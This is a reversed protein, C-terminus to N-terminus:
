NQTQAAEEAQAKNEQNIMKMREAIREASMVECVSIVRYVGSTRAAVTMAITNEQPTVIGMIYVIGRDVIVKMQSLYVNDEMVMRSRVTTALKSDKM